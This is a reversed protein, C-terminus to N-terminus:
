FVVSVPDFQPNEAIAACVEDTLAARIKPATFGELSDILRKAGIICQSHELAMRAEMTMNEPRGMGMGILYIRRKM